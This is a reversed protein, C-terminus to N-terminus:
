ATASLCYLTYLTTQAYCGADKASLEGPGGDPSYAQLNRQSLSITRVLKLEKKTPGTVPQILPDVKDKPPPWLHREVGTEVSRSPEDVLWPLDLQGAIGRAREEDIVPVKSMREPARLHGGQDM